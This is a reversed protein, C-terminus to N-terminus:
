NGVQGTETAPPPTGVDEQQGAPQLYSYIAFIILLAAIIIILSLTVPRTPM